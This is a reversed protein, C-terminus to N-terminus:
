YCFETACQGGVCVSIKTYPRTLMMAGGAEQLAADTLTAITTTDLKLKKVTALKKMPRRREADAANTAAM